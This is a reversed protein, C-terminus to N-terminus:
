FADMVRILLTNKTKKAKIGKGALNEAFAWAGTGLVRMM